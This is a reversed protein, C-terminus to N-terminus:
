HKSQKGKNYTNWAIALGLGLNTLILGVAILVGIQEGSM